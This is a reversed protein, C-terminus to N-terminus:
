NLPFDANLNIKDLDGNSIVVNEVHGDAFGISIRGNHRTKDFMETSGCDKSGGAQRFADGLSCNKDHDWYVQWNGAGDGGRPSGDTLLMLTSSHPFRTAHGRLRSHNRVANVGGPDGWGLAPENFAYSNYGNGGGGVTAAFRGGERDSPCVFLKRVTGQQIDKELNALTDTRIEQGLMPALAGMISMLNFPGGSPGYYDYKQQNPDQCAVPTTGPEIQGVLPMYGRHENAHLILAMLIQKQDAGCKIQNASERAKSLAPLLISILLAIIGIVVLLEVLTFARRSRSVTSCKFRM